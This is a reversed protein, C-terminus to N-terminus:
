LWREGNYILSISKYLESKFIRVDDSYSYIAYFETKDSARVGKYVICRGRMKLIASHILKLNSTIM